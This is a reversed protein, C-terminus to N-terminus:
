GATSIVRLMSWGILVCPVEGTAPRNLLLYVTGLVACTGLSLVQCTIYSRRILILM